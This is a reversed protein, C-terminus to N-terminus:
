YQSKYETVLVSCSTASIAQVSGQVVYPSTYYDSLALTSSAAAFLGTNTTAAQDANMRLFVGSTCNIPQITAGIRRTPTSTALVRVSTGAVTFTTSSAVVFTPSTNYGVSGGLSKSSHFGLYGIAIVSLSILTILLKKM